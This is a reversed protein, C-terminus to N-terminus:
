QTRLMNVKSDITANLYSAKTNKSKLFTKKILMENVKNSVTFGTKHHRTLMMDTKIIFASQNSFDQTEYLDTLNNEDLYHEHIRLM